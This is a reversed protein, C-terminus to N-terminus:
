YFNAFRIFIQINYVLKLELWNRVTEIKKDKIQIKQDFIVYELFKAENQLVSMKQLQCLPLVEEFYRFGM